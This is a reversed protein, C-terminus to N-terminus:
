RFPRFARRLEEVFLGPQEWAAFHGGRDVQNWYYLNPWAQEAWARPPQFFEAPFLSAGMPLEVRGASYGSFGTRFVEWYLRASSAATNTFWYLAINDLMADISLASRGGRQDSWSELKEYIWAAQAIPSDALGYGLTQPRGGQIRAYAGGDGDTVEALGELARREEPTPETPATSPFVLPLNVHAAILGRPRLQGLRHTVLSGWDGGQAVWRAYGLREMLVAWARAIREANWGPAAPRGSFGFGPLSPIVVDFADAEDGGHAVPDTLPGICELFEVLSGPWGHTLLVPLAAPHPSRVHIVHFDLGDISAKVQPHRNLRAEFARWDHRLRWHDALNRAAALQVGQEAGEVTEADPWRITELRAQLDDIAANPVHVKFPTM